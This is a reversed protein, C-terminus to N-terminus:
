GLLRCTVTADGTLAPLAAYGALQYAVAPEEGDDEDTTLTLAGDTDLVYLAQGGTVVGAEKPLDFVGSFRVAIVEEAVGDTSAVGVLGGYVVLDGASVPAELEIDLSVGEQVYNRM